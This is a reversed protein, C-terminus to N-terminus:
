LSCPSGPDLSCPSLSCPAADLSCPSGEELQCLIIVEEQSSQTAPQSEPLRHRTHDILVAIAAIGLATGVITKQKM